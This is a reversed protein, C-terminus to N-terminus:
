KNLPASATLYKTNVLKMNDAAAIARIGQWQEFSGFTVLNVVGDTATPLMVQLRLM